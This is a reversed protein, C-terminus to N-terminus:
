AQESGISLTLLEGCRYVKEEMQDLWNKFVELDHAARIIFGKLEEEQKELEEERKKLGNIEGRHHDFQENIEELDRGVVESRAEVSSIVEQLQISSTAMRAGGEQLQSHLQCVEKNMSDLHTDMLEQVKLQDRM